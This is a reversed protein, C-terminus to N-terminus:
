LKKRVLKWLDSRLMDLTDGNPSIVNYWMEIKSQNTIFYDRLAKDAKADIRVKTLRNGRREGSYSELFAERVPELNLSPNLILENIFESLGQDTLFLLWDYSQALVRLEKNHDNSTFWNGHNSVVGVTLIFGPFHSPSDIVERLIEQYPRIVFSGDLREIMGQFKGNRLRIKQLSSVSRAVYAGQKAKEITQPGKRMGEEVGVRKCEFIAFPDSTLECIVLICEVNNWSDINAVVPGTAQEVLVSSNRKIHDRSLIQTSKIGMSSSLSLHREVKKATLPLSLLTIRIRHRKNVYHLSFEVNHSIDPNAFEPIKCEIIIHDSLNWVRLTYYTILEVLTGLARGAAKKRDVTYKFVTEALSRQLADISEFHM